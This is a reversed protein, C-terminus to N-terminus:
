DFSIKYFEQLSNKYFLFMQKAFDSLIKAECINEYFNNKCFLIYVNAECIVNRLITMNMEYFHYNIALNM